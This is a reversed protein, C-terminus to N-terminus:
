NENDDKIKLLSLAYVFSPAATRMAAHNITLLWFMVFCLLYINEKNDIYLFIPTFFLIILIIIGLSGHEALLRTIENHSAIVTGIEETRLETAKAVGVGLFPNKLFTNWEFLALDERGSFNSDKKRGLADKNEYRKSILGNTIIETYIWVSTFLVISFGILYNLRLKEKNSSGIYKLFILILVMVFGTIMGGRSFTILGRFTMTVAIVLNIIFYFKNKSNNLLRSFFVFMGLGLATSVQNPGFGGTTDFNSGTSTIVTKLNPTYLILYVTCALIPLAMLFLLNDIEVKTFKRNYCYLSALGLCLSGSINFSLTKRIDITELNLSQTGIILGPILLLLFIWYPIANKSFGSYFMGVFVFVIVGYKSFEYNPSGDTMRLLVESGVIYASVYLVENNKNQTKIVYYLGFIIILFSYIKSFTPIIYILVGIGIHLLILILYNKEYNKM